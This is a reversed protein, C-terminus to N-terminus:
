RKDRILETMAQTFLQRVEAVSTEKTVTFPQSHKRPKDIRYLTYCESGDANCAEVVKFEARQPNMVKRAAAVQENTM